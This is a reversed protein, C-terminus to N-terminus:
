TLAFPWVPVRDLFFTSDVKVTKHFVTGHAKVIRVAPANAAYAFPCSARTSKTHVGRTIPVLAFAQKFDKRLLPPLVVHLM